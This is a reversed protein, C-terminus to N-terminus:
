LPLNPPNNTPTYKNVINEVEILDNLEINSFNFKYLKNLIKQKKFYARIEIEKDPTLLYCSTSSFSKRGVEKVYGNDSIERYVRGEYGERIKYFAMKSTVRTITNISSYSSYQVFYIKDGVQLLKEM